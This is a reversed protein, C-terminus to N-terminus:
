LSNKHRKKISHGIRTATRNSATQKWIQCQMSEFHFDDLALKEEDQQRFAPQVSKSHPIRDGNLQYCKPSHSPDFRESDSQAYFTLLPLTFQSRWMAVVQRTNQLIHAHMVHSKNLTWQFVSNTHNVLRSLMMNQKCTILATAKLESLKSNLTTTWTYICSASRYSYHKGNRLHTYSLRGIAPRNMAAIIHPSRAM